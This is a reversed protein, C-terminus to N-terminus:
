IERAEAKGKHIYMWAVIVLAASIGAVPVVLLGIAWLFLAIVAAVGAFFESDRYSGIGFFVLVIIIGLLNRAPVSWSGFLNFGNTLDFPIEDSILVPVAIFWNLNNGNITATVNV